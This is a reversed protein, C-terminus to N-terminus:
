SNQRWTVTFTAGERRFTAQEAQDAVNSGEHTLRRAFCLFLKLEYCSTFCTFCVFMLLASRRDNLSFKIKENLSEWFTSNNRLIHFDQLIFDYFILINQETSYFKMTLLYNLDFEVSQLSQTHTM